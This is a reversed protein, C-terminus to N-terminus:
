GLRSAKLEVASKSRQLIACIDSTKMEMYNQKIFNIEEETWPSEKKHLNLEFCKARVSQETRGLVDGIEKCTMEAFNDKIYELESSTYRKNKIM